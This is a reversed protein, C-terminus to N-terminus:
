GLTKHVSAASAIPAGQADLLDAHQFLLTKTRRVVRAEATGARASAIITIEMSVLTAKGGAEREAAADLAETLQAALEANSM